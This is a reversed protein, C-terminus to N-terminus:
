EGIVNRHSPTAVHILRAIQRFAHGDFLAGLPTHLLEGVLDVDRRATLPQVIKGSLNLIPQALVRGLGAEQGEEALVSRRRQHNL